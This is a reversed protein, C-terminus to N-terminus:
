VDQLCRASSEHDCAGWDAPWDICEGYFEAAAAKDLRFMQGAAIDFRDLITDIILGAMGDAVAHPKILGLTTGRQLACAGPPSAGFFFGAEQTPHM